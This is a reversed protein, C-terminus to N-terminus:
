QNRFIRQFCVTDYWTGNSKILLSCMFIQNCGKAFAMVNQKDCFLLFWQQEVLNIQNILFVTRMLLHILFRKCLGYQGKEIHVNTQLLFFTHHFWCSLFLFNELVIEPMKFAANCKEPFLLRSGTRMLLSIFYNRIKITCFTM